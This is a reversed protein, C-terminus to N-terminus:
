PGPNNAALKSTDWGAHNMLCRGCFGGSCKMYGMICLDHYDHGDFGGGANVNVQAPSTYQHVGYLVHGMEHQTNKNSDYPFAPNSYVANGFAVYCARYETGWGSNTFPTGPTGPVGDPGHSSVSGVQVVTLGSLANRTFFHLFETKVAHFISGMNAWFAADGSASPWGGAPAPASKPAADYAAATLFRLLGPNDNHDLLDDDPLLTVLDYRQSTAPAARGLAYRLASQWEAQTIDHRTAADTELEVDFWSKKFESAIVGAFDFNDLAGGCNAQQAATSAAPYAWRLYKSVRLIRWIVFTGTEEAVKHADTGDSPQGGIPDVFARLKYRDGGQWSPMFIAAAEGQENTEVRVANPRASAVGVKLKLTTNFDARATTIELLNTAADTGTVANGRKGGLASHANDVLPDGAVAPNLARHDAVYKGPSGTMVFVSAGNTSTTTTTRLAPAALAHGAPLADPVVFQFHVKQGGAPKLGKRQVEVKAVVPVRGLSPNNQWVSKEQTYHQGGGNTGFFGAAMQAPTVCWAGPVRLKGLAGKAPLVNQDVITNKVRTTLEAVAAADSALHLETKFHSWADQAIQAINAGNLPEYLWGIAQLRQRVGPDTHTNAVVKPFIADIEGYKLTIKLKPLPDAPTVPLVDWRFMIPNYVECKEPKCVTPSPHCDRLPVDGPDFFCLEVRTSSSRAFGARRVADLGHNSGCGVSKKGDDVYKLASRFAGLGGVDAAGLFVALVELYVDFFAGWLEATITDDLPLSKTFEDNYSKKFRTIAARTPDDLTGGVGQPDCDLAWAANIWTLIRQVDQVVHHDKVTAIWLARDGDLISRFADGRLQSLARAAEADGAAHGAILLKQAAHGQAYRYASRAVSLATVPPAEPHAADRVGHDALVVASGDHFHADSLEMVHGVFERLEFEHVATTALHFVKSHDRRTIREM